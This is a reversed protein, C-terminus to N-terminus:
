DNKAFFSMKFFNSEFPEPYLYRLLVVAMRKTKSLEELFTMKMKKMFDIGDFPTILSVKQYM